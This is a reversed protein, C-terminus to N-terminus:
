TSCAGEGGAPHRPGRRPDQRRSMVSIRYDQGRYVIINLETEQGVQVMASKSQGNMSFRKDRPLRDTSSIIIPANTNRWPSAIWRALITAIALLQSPDAEHDRETLRQDQGRTRDNTSRLDEVAKM